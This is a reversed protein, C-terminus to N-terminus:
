RPHVGRGGAAGTFDGSWVHQQREPDWAPYCWCETHLPMEQGPGSTRSLLIIKGRQRNNEKVHPLDMIVCRGSHGQTGLSDKLEGEEQWSPGPQFPLHRPWGRQNGTNGSKNQYGGARLTANRTEAKARSSKAPIQLRTGLCTCTENEHRKAVRCRSCTSATFDTNVPDATPGAPQTKRGRREAGSTNPPAETLLGPSGGETHSRPRLGERPAQTVASGRKYQTKGGRQKRAEKGEAAKGAQRQIPPLTM